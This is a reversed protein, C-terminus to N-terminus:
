TNNQIQHSIPETGFLYDFRSMRNQNALSRDDVEM